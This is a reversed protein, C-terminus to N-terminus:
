KPTMLEVAAKRDADRFADIARECVEFARTAQVIDVMGRVASASSGELAGVELEAPAPTAKGASQDARMLKAGEKVLGSQNAFSVVLLSGSPQGDVLVNGDAAIGLKSTPAVKIPKRSPDLIPDGERTTLTGDSAVQINGDRTYREGRATNVVLYSGGKLAIDLPRGTPIFAGATPDTTVSGVSGYVLNFGGHRKAQAHTLHERFVARDVHYANTSANAVNEAAVDLALTQSMAGSAAAWIGDSM